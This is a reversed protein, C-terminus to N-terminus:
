DDLGDCTAYAIDWFEDSAVNAASSMDSFVPGNYLASLDRAFSDWDSAGLALEAVAGDAAPLAALIATADRAIRPDPASAFSTYLSTETAYLRALDSGSQHILDLDEPKNLTTLIGGFEDGVSILSQVSTCFAPYSAPDVPTVTPSAQATGSSQATSPQATSSASPGAPTGPSTGCAGLGVAGLIAVLAAAVRRSHDIM